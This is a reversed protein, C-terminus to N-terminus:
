IPDQPMTMPFTIIILKSLIIARVRLHYYYRCILQLRDTSMRYPSDILIDPVQTVSAAAPSSCASDFTALINIM